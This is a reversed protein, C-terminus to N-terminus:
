GDLLYLVKVTRVVILWELCDTAVAATTAPQWVM